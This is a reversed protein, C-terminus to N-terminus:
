NIRSGPQRPNQGAHAAPTRTMASLVNLLFRLNGHDKAYFADATVGRRIADKSEYAGSMAVLSLQPFQQRVASLLEFGSMEPMNLDSLLVAPTGQKLLALAEEGNAATTVEYGSV